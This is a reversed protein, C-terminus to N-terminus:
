DEGGGSLGDIFNICALVREYPLDPWEDWRVGPFFHM